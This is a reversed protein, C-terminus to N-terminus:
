RSHAPKPCLKGNHDHKQKERLVRAGQCLQAVDHLAKAVVPVKVGAPVRQAERLAPVSVTPKRTGKAVSRRGTTM